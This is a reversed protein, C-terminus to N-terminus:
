RPNEYVEIEGATFEPPWTEVEHLVDPAGPVNWVAWNHWLNDVIVFRARAYHPDFAFRDTPIDTPLDPASYGAVVTAMQVDAVNAEILWALTPSAIVVVDPEAHRNIFDAASRAHKSDILFPDIPTVFQSRVQRFMSELSAVFPIAVVLLAVSAAGLAIIRYRPLAQRATQWVYPVGCRLLAAVGLGVFPLLPIMYYFGLSYLATTRGLILIPLLFLLLSLRRLRAPRLLFLGVWGLAIWTDQFILTSYNTILTRVQALLSLKSLRFLTFNLDFLFAQPATALMVAAYLGFPLLVLPLSWLLNRWNRKLIVLALPAVLAFMWLDSVGGLGITLAALVLWHLRSTSLYEWCGLMTLMVLPTLLNYSFGFRSYVVAQPYIALMLAALLALAPNRGQQTRCVVWYLLGVSVVGLAGTLARLTGIGGGFTGLLGALLLEFLPLKAFMLTSQNIALYQARGSLLNQAIDLHTGEDTYWGPNDAVNTLRLYAALAIILGLAVIEFLFARRSM